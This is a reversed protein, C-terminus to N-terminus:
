NLNKMLLLKIGYSGYMLVRETQSEESCGIWNSMVGCYEPEEREKRGEKRGELELRLILLILLILILIGMGMQQM